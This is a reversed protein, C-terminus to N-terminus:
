SPNAFLLPRPLTMAYIISRTLGHVLHDLKTYEYSSVQLFRISLRRYHPFDDALRRRFAQM